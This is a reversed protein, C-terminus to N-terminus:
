MPPNGYLSRQRRPTSTAMDGIAKEAKDAIRTTETNAAPHQTAIHKLLKTYHNQPNSFQGCNEATNIPACLACLWTQNFFRVPCQQASLKRTESFWINKRTTAIHIKQQKSITTASGLSSRPRPPNAIIETSNDTSIETDLSSDPRSFGLAHIEALSEDSITCEETTNEQRPPRGQRNDPPTDTTATTKVIKTSTNVTPSSRHRKRDSQTSKATVAPGLQACAALNVPQGTPNFNSLEPVATSTLIPSPAQGQRPEADTATSQDLQLVIEDISSTPEDNVYANRRPSHANVPSQRPTASITPPPQVDMPTPNCNDGTAGNPSTFDGCYVTLHRCLATLNDSPSQNRSIERLADGLTYKVTAEDTVLINGFHKRSVSKWFSNGRKAEKLAQCFLAEKRFIDLQSQSICTVAKNVGDFMANESIDRVSDTILRTFDTQHRVLTAKTPEDDAFRIISPILKSLCRHFQKEHHTLSNNGVAKAIKITATIAKLITRSSDLFQRETATLKETNASKRTPKPKTAQNKPRSPNRPGKTAKTAPPVTSPRKAPPKGPTRPTQRVAQRPAQADSIGFASAQRLFRTEDLKVPFQGYRNISDLKLTTFENDSLFYPINVSNGNHYVITLHNAATFYEKM